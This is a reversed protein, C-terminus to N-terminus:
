SFFILHHTKNFNCSIVFKLSWYLTFVVFVLVQFSNFAFKNKGINKYANERRVGASRMVSM